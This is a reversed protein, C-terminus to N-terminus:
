DFLTLDDNDVRLVSGEPLTNILQDLALQVNRDTLEKNAIGDLMGRSFVSSNSRGGLMLRGEVTIVTKYEPHSVFPYSGITVNPHNEVVQNLTPVISNEDVSLVVKYAVSRGLQCSLYEAVNEIKMQFFEPIGPLIFINRCQLVPWDNPKDSLYRLKAKDPLMAMKEQAESLEVNKGSNMKDRLLKAMEEHLEM